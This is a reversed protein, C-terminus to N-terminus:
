NEQILGAIAQEYLLQATEINRPAGSALLDAYILLPPVLDGFQTQTVAFNWFATMVEIPGDPHKKMKNQIILSAPSGTVYITAMQPKLYQTRIAAAIEGGWYAQFARINIKKWWDNDEVIFRGAILKPRLQEPYATIWRELLRAKNTLRRGRQGMDILYGMEKLDKMVWGVTGLAVMAIRSIERFPLNELGPNCLLAFIVQLGAPRFARTAAGAQRSVVPKNGRVFMYLPPDNLFVNGATDLFQINMGRLEEALPPTVYRTLLVGKGQLLNLRQLAVGLTPRTLVPMVVAQFSHERAEAMPGISIQAAVAGSNTMTPGKGVKVPLATTLRLVEIASRLVELEVPVQFPLHATKTNM